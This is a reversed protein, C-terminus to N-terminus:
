LACTSDSANLAYPITRVTHQSATSKLNQPLRESRSDWDVASSHSTCIETIFAVPSMCAPLRYNHHYVPLGVYWVSWIGCMDYMSYLGLM